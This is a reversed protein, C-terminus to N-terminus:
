KTGEKYLSNRLVINRLEIEKIFKSMEVEIIRKDAKDVSDKVEESLCELHKAM